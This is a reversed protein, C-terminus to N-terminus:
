KILNRENQRSLDLIIVLDTSVVSSRYGTCVWLAPSNEMPLINIEKLANYTKHSIEGTHKSIINFVERQQETTNQRLTTNDRLDGKACVFCFSIGSRELCM